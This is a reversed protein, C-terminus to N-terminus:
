LAKRENLKRRLKKCRHKKLMSAAKVSKKRKKVSLGWSYSAARCREISLRMIHLLYNGKFFGVTTFVVQKGHQHCLGIYYISLDPGQFRGWRSADLVLVYQFDDNKSEVCAQIMAMFGDRGEVSLGSIGKDTFERIIEIGHETAFKRVQDQQIEIKNDQPFPSAQRYYAVAKKGTVLKADFSEV